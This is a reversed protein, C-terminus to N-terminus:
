CVKVSQTDLPWHEAIWAIDLLTAIRKSPIMDIM